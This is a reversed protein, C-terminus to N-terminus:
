RDTKGLVVSGQEVIEIAHGPLLYCPTSEHQRILRLCRYMIRARASTDVKPNGVLRKEPQM